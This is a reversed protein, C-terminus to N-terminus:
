DRLAIRGVGRSAYHCNRSRVLNAMAANCLHKPVQHCCTQGPSLSSGISNTLGSSQSQWVGSLDYSLNNYSGSQRVSVEASVDSVSAQSSRIPSYEPPRGLKNIFRLYDGGVDIDM